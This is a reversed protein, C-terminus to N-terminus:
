HASATESITHDLEALAGRMASELAPLLSQLAASPVSPAEAGTLWEYCVSLSIQPWVTDLPLGAQQMLRQPDLPTSSTNWISLLWDLMQAMRTRKKDCAMASCFAAHIEEAMDRVLLGFAARRVHNPMLDNKALRVALRIGRQLPEFADIAGSDGGLRMLPEHLLPSALSLLQTVEDSGLQSQVELAGRMQLSTRLAQQALEVTGVRDLEFELASTATATAAKPSVGGATRESPTEESVKRHPERGALTLDFPTSKFLRALGISMPSAPLTHSRMQEDARRLLWM